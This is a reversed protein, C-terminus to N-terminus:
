FHRVRKTIRVDIHGSANPVLNVERPDACRKLGTYVTDTTDASPAAASTDALTEELADARRKTKQYDHLVNALDFQLQSIVSDREAVRDELEQIRADREKIRSCAARRCASSVLWMFAARIDCAEPHDVDELWRLFADTTMYRVDATVPAITTAELPNVIIYGM